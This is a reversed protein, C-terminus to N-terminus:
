IFTSEETYKTFGHVFYGVSFFCQLKIRKKFRDHQVTDALM